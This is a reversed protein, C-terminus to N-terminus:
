RSALYVLRLEEWTVDPPCLLKIPSLGTVDGAKAMATSIAKVKDADILQTVPIEGKKVASALHTYITSTSLNREKAILEPLMGSRYMRLTVEQTPEKKPKPEKPKRERKKRTSNPNLMDMADLLTEQKAKLYYAVSFVEEAMRTLLGKRALYALQLDAFTNDLRKMAQKNNSKIDKTQHLLKEFLAELTNSFYTASRQVRDLVEESSLQKMTMDAIQRQWKEAIDFLKLRTDLMTQKHLTTLSSFAHSFYEIMVRGLAEEYQCIDNFDFMEMLLHRYYEDKFTELRGVNRTSAEQQRNIYQHVSEDNIVASPTLMSSLVMGEMTRCRSLAVYVQGPAFSRQADIIAHNFTLGQSKHITIAWALRLPMQSFTGVIKSEIEKTRENLTYKTNEWVQPEVKVTQGNDHCRVIVNSANLETINGIRGNYYLHEASPDNKIFMVQAGVKLTLQPATPYAYEPFTGDVDAKYAIPKTPLQEMRTENYRDASANHTTLRIYGESDSPQFDPIYRSNLQQMDTDTPRGDRIHNLITLFQLDQQRYVHELQITVYDILSLAHSGFFYPTDYYPRLMQEDDPTVVPTLQGLDGIMLLQVGGFPKDHKRFRRLVSDIADLLDSRVMSIEDIILLDISSLIKRKEKSFDFRSKMTASPVFPSLPLQFFSHITVGGANIAAVGTPAVVISRKSSQQVVTKLFTTKGTGAKGTLFISKGTHEIFEWALRMEKNQAM